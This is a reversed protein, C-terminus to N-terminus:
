KLYHRNNKWIWRDSQRYLDTGAPRILLEDVFIPDSRLNANNFTLKFKSDGAQVEFPFEMLAWGNNDIAKLVERSQATYQKRMGGTAPDSEVVLFDTRPYLDHNIFMWMSFLYVGPKAEPITGEFILNEDGMKGEYGGSGLYANAAPSGDMADYIFNLKPQTSRFGKVEFLTSDKALTDVIEQKRQAIKKDYIDLDLRFFRLTGDTYVLQSEQLLYGWTTEGEPAESVDHVILLPRHDPYDDIVKPRRYPEMMMQLQNITQSVSTRTLMAATVPLGTQMSMTQSRNGAFYKLPWWFNDSGVNYYPLPMIAQYDSYKIGPIDTFRKGPEGLPIEDLRVDISRTFNWTEFLMLAFAPIWVAWKWKKAALKHYLWAFAIINMVFYFLWAFRGVSRFQRVPGSYLLLDELGPIIFPLGFSFLLLVLSAYFISNLYIKRSPLFSVPARRFGRGIWGAFVGIFVLAAVLGVYAKGEFDVERIHIVKEHIWQFHPQTLSTFIGEWKANYHFFGWPLVTRDKVPDGWYMWWIFFLLPLVVQIGYHAAYRSLLQKNRKHLYSFLFYLSITAGMIAFFYFHFLSIVTLFFAMCFSNVITRKEEFRMLFYLTAPMAVPLALGFHGTMRMHQPALFTIAIAVLVSYWAPVDLRRFILYLFFSCLLISFLMNFNFVGLAYDSLDVLHADIWKLTNSLAPQTDAPVAHEGYPYNMGQFHRYTSDYKVHYIFAQYAKYGDGGQEIVMKNAVRFFDEYRLYICASMLLLLALAGKMTQSIKM